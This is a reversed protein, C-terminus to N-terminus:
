SCCVCSDIQLDLGLRAGEAKRSGRGGWLDDMSNIFSRRLPMARYYVQHKLLAQQICHSEVNGWIGEETWLPSHNESWTGQSGM